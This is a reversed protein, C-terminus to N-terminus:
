KLAQQFFRYVCLSALYSYLPTMINLSLISTEFFEKYCSRSFSALCFIQIFQFILKLLLTAQKINRSESVDLPDFKNIVAEKVNTLPISSTYIAGRAIRLDCEM